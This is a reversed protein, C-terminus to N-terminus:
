ECKEAESWVSPRIEVYPTIHNPDYNPYLSGFYYAEAHRSEASSSERITKTLGAPIYGPYFVNEFDMLSGSMDYYLIRFQINCIMVPLRNTLRFEYDGAVPNGNFLLYDSVTVGKETRTAVVDLMSKASQDNKKGTALPMIEKASSALLRSLYSVPVALNLNQGDRFTAVAIGIVAGSSDM